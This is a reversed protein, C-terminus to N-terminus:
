EGRPPHPGFRGYPRSDDAGRRLVQAAILGIGLLVLCCAVLANWGGHQWAAGSLSGIVSAGAYYALLYLSAAHGKFQGGLRGVWASAASHAVFFGITLLVIGAIVPVLAHALTLAVGLAATAIGALVVPGRGFRDSAAGAVSSSVIGFVYASFIMGLQSQSLGFEPGGLRFGAYNYVSVFVGMALFPIAFLWPLHRDRLHGGWARLHFRLNVGQRRVFHRSPPLLWVFGVAALLDVASLTALATRWDFHDTLMSMGIRGVMGGFANGAVYLGTAAGLRSAPLEEALYVMAVAPVGGLAIGSLARVVVLAGWHPLYSALLNLLAALAISVFMLGRRGLTESVAGACFIAIALGGTALSLPLSSAAASLGFERAFEPLLPQVSYLLSFTAFGALFLALRIRLLPADDVAHVPPCQSSANM